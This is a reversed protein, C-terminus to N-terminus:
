RRFRALAQEVALSAEEVTHQIKFLTPSHRDATLAHQEGLMAAFNFFFAKHEMTEPTFMLHLEVSRDGMRLIEPTGPLAFGTLQRRELIAELPLPRFLPGGDLLLNAYPIRARATSGHRLPYTIDMGLDFCGDATGAMVFPSDEHCFQVQQGAEPLCDGKGARLAIEPPLVNGPALVGHERLIMVFAEYCRAAWGYFDSDDHSSCSGDQHRASNISRINGGSRYAEITYRADKLLANLRDVCFYRQLGEISIRGGCMEELKQQMTQHMGSSSDEFALLMVMTAHIKDSPCFETEAQRLRALLPHFAEPIGDLSAEAIFEREITACCGCDDLAVQYRNATRLDIGRKVILAPMALARGADAASRGLLSALRTITEAQDTAARRGRLTVSFTTM